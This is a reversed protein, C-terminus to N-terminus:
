QENASAKVARVCALMEYDPDTHDLAETRMEEVAIGHLFATASALNGYAQVTVNRVGFKDDVLRRIGLSTFRWFEGWRDMDFRSIQSITPATALLVGGPKLARHCHGVASRVDFIFQLVQTLIICDYAESPLGAGTEINGVFTAPPEASTAHLVHSRTVHDGGFRITYSPDAVELVEGRIDARNKTLFGEVYYRDIPRGRDIGFVRSVPEMADLGNRKAPRLVRTKLWRRLGAPLIRRGLAKIPQEGM